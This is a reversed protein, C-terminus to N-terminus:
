TWFKMMAMNNNILLILMGFIMGSRRLKTPHFNSIASIRLHGDFHFCRRDLPDTALPKNRLFGVLHRLSDALDAHPNGTFTM